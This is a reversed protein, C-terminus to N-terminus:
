LTQFRWLTAGKGKKQSRSWTDATYVMMDGTHVHRKSESPSNGGVKTKGWAQESLQLLLERIGKFVKGSFLGCSSFSWARGEQSMTTAFEHMLLPFNKEVIVEYFSPPM